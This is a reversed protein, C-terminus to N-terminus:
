ALLWILVLLILGAATVMMWRPRGQGFRPPEFEDAVFAAHDFEADPLDLADYAAQESWGSAHCAGCEACAKAGAPVEAGCV